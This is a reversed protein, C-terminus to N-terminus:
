ARPCPAAWSDAAERVRPAAAAPVAPAASPSAAPAPGPALTPGPVRRTPTVWPADAPVRAGAAPAPASAAAAAQAPAASAPAATPTPTNAVAQDVGAGARHAGTLIRTVDTGAGDLRGMAAAFDPWAPAAFIADCVLGKPMTTRLPGAWRVDADAPAAPTAM